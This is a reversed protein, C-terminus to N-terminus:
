VLSFYIYGVVEDEISVTSKTLKNNFNRLLKLKLKKNKYNEIAASSNYELKTVIWKGEKTVTEQLFFKNMSVIIESFTYNLTNEFLIENNVIQSYKKVTEESYEQRNNIPTNNDNIAAYYKTDDAEFTILSDYETEIQQDTVIMDANNRIWNHASYKIKTLTGFEKTLIDIANDLIDPGQVYDRQGKLNYTLTYKKKM